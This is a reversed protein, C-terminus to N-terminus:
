GMCRLNNPYKRKSVPAAARGASSLGGSSKCPRIQAMCRTHDVRKTCPRFPLEVEVRGMRTGGRACGDWPCLHGGCSM